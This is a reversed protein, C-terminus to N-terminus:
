DPVIILGNRSIPDSLSNLVASLKTTKTNETM